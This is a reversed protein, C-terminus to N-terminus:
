TNNQLRVEGLIRQPSPFAFIPVTTQVTSTVRVKLKKVEASHGDEMAAKEQLAQDLKRKAAILETTLRRKVAGVKVQQIQEKVEQQVRGTPISRLSLRLISPHM